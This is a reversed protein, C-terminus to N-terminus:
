SAPPSDCNLRLLPPTLRQALFLSACNADQIQDARDRGDPELTRLKEVICRSNTLMLRVSLKIISSVPIQHVYTHMYAYILMHYYSLIRVSSSTTNEPHPACHAMANHSVTPAYNINGEFHSPPIGGVYFSPIIHWNSTFHPSKSSFMKPHTSPLTSLLHVASIRFTSSVAEAQVDCGSLDFM